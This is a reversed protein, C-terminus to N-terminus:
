TVWDRKRERKGEKSASHGSFDLQLHSITILSSHDRCFISSRNQFLTRGCYWGGLESTRERERRKSYVAATTSLSPTLLIGKDGNYSEHRSNGVTDPKMNSCHSLIFPFIPPLPNPIKHNASRRVQQEWCTTSLHRNSLPTLRCPTHDAVSDLLM